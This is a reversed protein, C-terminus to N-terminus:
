EGVLRAGSISENRAERVKMLGTRPGSPPFLILGCAEFALLGRQHVLGMPLGKATAGKGDTTGHRAKRLPLPIHSNKDRAATDTPQRQPEAQMLNANGAANEFAHRLQFREADADIHQRM